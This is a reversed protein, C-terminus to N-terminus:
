IRIDAHLCARCMTRFYVSRSSAATLAGSGCLDCQCNILEHGKQDASRPVDGHGSENGLGRALTRPKSANLVAQLLGAVVDTHVGM